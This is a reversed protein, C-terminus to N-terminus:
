TPQMAREAVVPMPPHKWMNHAIPLLAVLAAIGHVYFQVASLPVVRALAMVVLAAMVLRAPGPSLVGSRSVGLAFGFMGLAFTVAGAVLVPIFWPNLAEQAAAVDGGVENTALPAFEMGPLMAYLTSGIVVFPLAAASWRDEGAEHLHRRIALFATAVAASSIGVALHAIGWRTPDAIVAEAVEDSNPLRGSLYPHLGHAVLLM